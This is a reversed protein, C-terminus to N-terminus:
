GSTVEDQRDLYHAIPIEHHLLYMGVRMAMLNDGGPDGLPEVLERGERAPRIRRALAGEAGGLAFQQLPPPPFRVGTRLHM